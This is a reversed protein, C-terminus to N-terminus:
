SFLDKAWGIAKEFVQIIGKPCEESDKSPKLDLIQKCSCGYVLQEGITDLCKDEIDLVGDGDSDVCLGQGPGPSLGYKGAIISFDASGIYDDGDFDADPNYCPEWEFCGYSIQFIDVDIDDIICDNNLDADCINGYGDNNTDRKDPNNKEICNDCVDGVGDGDSDAQDPNYVDPCNDFCDVVGDGDADFGEDVLGDCDNDLGDCVETAGPNISPDTDDCDGECIMYGDSDGDVEDSPVIGDCDNDKGTCIEPAGPYVTPDTDDCDVDSTYGDDDSDGVSHALTAMMINRSPELGIIDFDKKTGSAMHQICTHILAPRSPYCIDGWMVAGIDGWCLDDFDLPYAFACDVNYTFGLTEGPFGFWDYGDTLMRMYTSPFIPEDYYCVLSPSPIPMIASLDYCYEPGYLVNQNEINIFIYDEASISGALFLGLFILSSLFFVLSIKKM